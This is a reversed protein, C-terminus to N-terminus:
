NNSLVGINKENGFLRISDRYTRLGTAACLEKQSTYLGNQGFITEGLLANQKDYVSDGRVFLM